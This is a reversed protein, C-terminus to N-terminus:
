NHINLRNMWRYLSRRSVGLQQAALTKNGQTERLVRVIQDHQATSLRNRHITRESTASSLASEPPNAPPLTMARQIEREGIIRNRTLICAREIVNRLERINGPWPAQRLQREAQATLGTLPRKLREAAESMFAATLYPIDERRDRLPPLRFELIGLRYYLDSRFHGSESDAALDRNTAAITFIDAHRTDLSGVRQVEGQEVARLLKPQLARPLEGIEDLFLTGGHAHEVLGVKTDTAGTFAGRVHGFLESEFLTAVVASCNVVVLRKDRRPGLKHLAKAVLEKGTGTEGTILATRAHPALRRILDFLEQMSPGCGVMGYFKFQKALDAEVRLLVERREVSRRVTTLVERLRGFDVPKTLYDLAGEKMAEIASDVSAEGTFLIVYCQPDVVRIQRLIEMGGVDPMRLDVLAADPRADKLSALAEHGSAQRVVRFGLETAFRDVLVLIAPDDDVVLLVPQTSTMYSAVRSVRVPGRACCIGTSM